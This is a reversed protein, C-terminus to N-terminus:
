AISEAGKFADKRVMDPWFIQGSDEMMKAAQEREGSFEGHRAAVNRFWGFEYDHKRIRLKPRDADDRQLGNKDIIPEFHYMEHDLLAAKQCDSATSWWTHDILIECDGNGKIRDKLGLKRALGRCERGNKTIAPGTPVGDDDLSPYAYLFDIKVGASLLLEHDEYKTLIEHALDLVDQGCRDYTPM